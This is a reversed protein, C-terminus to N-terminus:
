LTNKDNIAVDVGLKLMNSTRDRLNVSNQYLGKSPVEMYGESSRYSDNFGYNMFMNVKGVKYNLGLSANQRYNKSKTYGLNINGNFGINSNKNLIINIMGSMGEPNFKASPNTILEISKISTSPIQQLIEEASLSSPKGDILIRVNSNGRLSITGTQSDVSVSQINDLLEAATAGVSTLDKGVNIVKRDIKQVVSSVESRVVVEDLSSADEELSITGLSIKYNGDGIIVDIRHTLYGMYQVELTNSGEPISKLTFEGNGNTIVGLILEDSVDRILVNVYALSEKTESDVVRGTVVGTKVSSSPSSQSYANVCLIMVLLIMIKNM